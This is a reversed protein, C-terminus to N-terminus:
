GHMWPGLIGVVATSYLHTGPTVWTTSPLFSALVQIRPLALGLVVHGHVNSIQKHYQETKQMHGGKLLSMILVDKLVVYARKLLMSLDPPNQSCASSSLWSWPTRMPDWRPWRSWQEHGISDIWLCSKWLWEWQGQCRCFAICNHDSLETLSLILMVVGGDVELGREWHVWTMHWCFYVKIHEPSKIKILLYVVM